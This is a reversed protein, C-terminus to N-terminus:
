FFIPSFYTSNSQSNQPGKQSNYKHDESLFLGLLCSDKGFAKLLHQAHSGWDSRFTSLVDLSGMGIILVLRNDERRKM